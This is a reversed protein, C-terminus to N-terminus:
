YFLGAGEDYQISSLARESNKAFNAAKKVFVDGAAGTINKLAASAKAASNLWFTIHQREKQYSQMENNIIQGAKQASVLGAKEAAVATEATLLGAQAKGTQVDQLTKATTAEKTKYDAYAQMADAMANGASTIGSTDPIPAGIGGTTAGGGNASLIPNLGAARLDAVEWQHANQAREREWSLQKDTAQRAAKASLAAGAIGGGASLAGGLAAAAALSFSM